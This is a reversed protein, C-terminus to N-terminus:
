GDPKVKWKRIEVTETYPEVEVISSPNFYWGLDFISEDRNANADDFMVYRGDDLKVITSYEDWWRFSYRDIGTEVVEFEQLFYYLDKATVEYDKSTNKRSSVEDKFMQKLEDVIM